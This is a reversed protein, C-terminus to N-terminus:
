IKEAVRLKASRSRPNIKIEEPGPRIPKKTIIRLGPSVGSSAKLFFRKVIRDELSHYSIIAIRGGRELIDVAEPLVKRINELEDNVVIRLAQFIRTAPHIKSPLYRNLVARKVVDGLQGTTKIKQKDRTQCIDRAIKGAYREQGYKRFITELKKEPWQNVITEATLYANPFKPIDVYRMDLPEDKLFSFGKGSEELLWSSLGLDLLIGHIPKFKYLVVVKKLNAFNDNVLIINKRLEQNKIRSEFREISKHNLDIALVKGNPYVRKAIALTHGGEGLTCDIYNQGPQPQLNELVENLLVPVHSM